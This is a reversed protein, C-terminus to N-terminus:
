RSLISYSRLVSASLTAPPPLDRSHQFPGVLRWLWRRSKDRRTRHFTSGFHFSPISTTIRCSARWTGDHSMKSTPRLFPRIGHRSRSLGSYRKRQVMFVAANPCPPPFVSLHHDSVPLPKPFVTGLQPGAMKLSANLGSFPRRIVLLSLHVLDRLHLSLRTLSKKSCFNLWSGGLAWCPALALASM